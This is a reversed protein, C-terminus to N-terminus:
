GELRVGGIEGALATATTEVINMFALTVDFVGRYEYGTELAEDANELPGVVRMAIGEDALWVRGGVLFFDRAALALRQAEEADDGCVVFSFQQSAPQYYVGTDPDVCPTAGRTELPGTALYGLFPYPPLPADQNLRVIRCLRGYPGDQQPPAPNKEKPPAGTNVWAALGRALTQEIKKAAILRM